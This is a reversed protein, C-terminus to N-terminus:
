TVRAATEVEVGARVVDEIFGDIDKRTTAGNACALRIVRRGGVEAYGVLAREERRLRECVAESSRGVVEFCVTMSEPERVLELEPRRNVCEAAYRAMEFLHDVRDAYGADGLRKWAAWLKLADNRRGCQMSIKGHDYRDEDDSQFLYSAGEEFHKRLLGPRHCLIVSCSLPTGMLKHADWAFSDSRECGAILGRHRRSLAVSGGLAGDVHLWAGFEGAIDAIPEIPDFAGLVTTGATACIMM